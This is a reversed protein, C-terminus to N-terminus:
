KVLLNDFDRALTFDKFTEYNGYLIFTQNDNSHIGIHIDPSVSAYQNAMDNMCKAALRINHDINGPVNSRAMHQRLFNQYRGFDERKEKAAEFPLIVMAKDELILAINEGYEKFHILALRLLPEEGDLTMYSFLWCTYDFHKRDRGYQMGFRTIFHERESKAIELFQDTRCVDTANMRQKVAELLSVYGAGTVLGCSTKLLKQDGDKFHKGFPTELTARTDSSLILYAGLNMGLIATM